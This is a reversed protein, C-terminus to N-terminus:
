PDSRTSGPELSPVQSLKTRLEYRCRPEPIPKTNSLEAQNPPEGRSESSSQLSPEAKPEPSPELSQIRSPNTRVRGPEPILDIDVRSTKASGLACYQAREIPVTLPTLKYFRNPPPPASGVPPGGLM